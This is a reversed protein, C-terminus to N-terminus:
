WGSERLGPVQDRLRRQETSLETDRARLASLTYKNQDAPTMKIGALWSLLKWTSDPLDRPAVGAEIARTDISKGLNQVWPLTAVLANFEAPAALYPDNTQSDFQTALGMVGKLNEWRPDGYMASDILQLAGHTRTKEGPYDEIPMGTFSSKNYLMDLPTKVFPTLSQMLYDVAGQPSTPLRGLDQLPINPNLMMWNGNPDQFPLPFAGQEKMYDPIIAPDTGASAFAANRVKPFVGAKGPNKATWELMHPINARQWAIFPIVRAIKREWRSKAQPSYDYMARIALTGAADPDLGLRRANIYGGVRMGDEVLEGLEELRRKPNIFNLTTSIKSRAVDRGIEKSVAISADARQVGRTRIAQGRLEDIFELTNMRGSKGLDTIDDAGV